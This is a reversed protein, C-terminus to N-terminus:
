NPLLTPEYVDSTQRKPLRPCAEMWDLWPLIGRKRKSSSTDTLCMWAKGQPYIRARPCGSFVRIPIRDLDQHHQARVAIQGSAGYYGKRQLEMARPWIEAEQHYQIGWWWLLRVGKQGLVIDFCCLMRIECRARKTVTVVCTINVNYSSGRPVM